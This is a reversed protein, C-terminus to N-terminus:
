ALLSPEEAVAKRRFLGRFQSALSLLGVYGFGFLFLLMFPLSLFNSHRLCYGVIVVYYLAFLSELIAMGSAKTIYKNAWWQQGRAEVGFKPTRVFETSIGVLAELVAKANNVSLGIGLSMMLPIYCLQRKWTKLVERQGAIYFSAVSVTASWFLLLDIWFPIQLNMSQRAMIVPLMMAAVMLMFLYAFNNALHFTAEIKIYLPHESRWIGPLLKMATQISGKTWRHQQTKFANIEVPLEAAATLVPIYVFQWGRLQARYSLDLDETLTDHQWGGADVIAAKRWIGATGNFNFFRGSYHRAAHEIVFHGDIMISQLNTLLSYGRNLHEWRLQVLGVKENDFRRVIRKLFDRPAVFDADFIAVLEGTATRLANELAGAKYGSRDVRHILEVQFGDARMREAWSRSLEVTEDTSDDLIQIQLRDKPYDLHSVSELLRGAVYRENFIPLQLTVSYLGKDSPSVEVSKPRRRYFFYLMLYRHLSFMSLLILCLFYLGLLLYSWFSASMATLTKSDEVDASIDRSAEEPSKSIVM